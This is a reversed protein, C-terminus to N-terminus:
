VLLLIDAAMERIVDRWDVDLDGTARKAWVREMLKKAQACNGLVEVEQGALSMLCSSLFERHEADDTMCGCMAISLVVSRVVSRSAGESTPVRKLFGVTEDVGWTIEEVNPRCGSLVSHLYVRASARFVNAALRRRMDLNDPTVLGGDLAADDERSLYQSEIQRGREVLKPMSLNGQKIHYDKWYALAATESMAVVTENTCGMVSLMDVGGVQAGPYGHEGEFLDSYMTRFRPENLRTVASWVDFWMTTRIIFQASEECNRYADLPGVFRRDLLVSEV